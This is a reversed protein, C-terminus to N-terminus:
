SKSVTTSRWDILFQLLPKLTLQLQSAKEEAYLYDSGRHMYGEQGIEMQVAHVNEAPKGNNRTIYGGVFRGNVITSYESEDMIQALGTEIVPACSEGRATGLNLVPLVGEFLRPVESAISHCDYLIAYGHQKKVRDIESALQEHYPRWYKEVRRAIEEDTPEQGQRYLPEGDFFTTSCLGTTAQGPYLSEGTPPRNLDIVYRSHTAQVITVDFESAFEYLKPIHWDTDPLRLAEETLTVAIDEPVETGSHPM